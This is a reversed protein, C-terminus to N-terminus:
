TLLQGTSILYYEAVGLLLLAFGRKIALMWAGARPLRVAHDAALGVVLLLTCMGFSFALLYAFGLTASGTTTVWTLIAALVPAGCPAAVLGSAVGMTLAGAFRGGDGLTAARAQLRAPVFSPLLDLMMAAAVLMVNAMAFSLWPTTSTAGFMTGTLGAALGLAAYTAALGAVYTLVLAARRGRTAIREGGGVIAATVPIMPYLCPTLSTLVGGAYVGVVALLPRDSLAVGLEALGIIM